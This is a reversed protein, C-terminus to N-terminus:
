EGVRTLAHQVRKAATVRRHWSLLKGAVNPLKQSLKAATRRTRVSKLEKGGELTEGHIHGSAAPDGPSVTEGPSLLSMDLRGILQKM